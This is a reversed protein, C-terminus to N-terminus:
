VPPIEIKLYYILMFFVALLILWIVSAIIRLKKAKEEKWWTLARVGQFYFTVIGALNICIVNVTVLLFAIWALDFLGAGLFLGFSVLPPLLAVAVMVGILIAPLGTTFALVGAAGASLALLIDTLDVSIHFIQFSLILHEKLFFGIVVAVALAILMGAINVILARYALKLDGLTAAFSLAVNPGLLPAIVMSGIIAPINQKMLGISAVISSLIVMVIYNRNLKCADDIDHYLEERSIRESAQKSTEAPSAQVEKEKLRPLIAEISSLILKFNNDNTYRKELADMLKETEEAPLIIKVFIFEESFTFEWVSANEFEALTQKIEPEKDKSLQIDLLRLAM